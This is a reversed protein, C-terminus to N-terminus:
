QLVVVLLITVQTGVQAGFRQPWRNHPHGIYERTMCTAERPFGLGLANRSEKSTDRGYASDVGCAHTSQSKPEGVEPRKVSLPSNKPAWKEHGLKATRVV